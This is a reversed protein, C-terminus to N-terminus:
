AAAPTAAERGHQERHARWDLLVSVAYDLDLKEGAWLPLLDAEAPPLDPPRAWPPVIQRGREDLRGDGPDRFVLDGRTDVIVTFREEHMLRHHFACLLVLNRLSTRGGRSWYRIHHGQVRSRRQEECGPFRCGGDRAWLARNVAAPISRSARGIDLVERGRRLMVVLSADCGIRAVQEASLAPGGELYAAGSATDGALVDADVHVVVQHRAAASQREPDPDLFARAMEVMAEAQSCPRGAAEATPEDNASSPVEHENPTSARSDRDLQEQAAQLATLLLAGDAASLRGSLRLSGDDDWHVQVAFRDSEPDPDSLRDARRWSRVMREVHAVTGALGIALLDEETDPTAVRTLARVSSFSLRGVRLAAAISPLNTLARAVRVHERAANPSLGCKWALWHACSKLGPGAWGEHRDFEAVLELWRGTAAAVKAAISCIEEALDALRRESRDVASPSVAVESM